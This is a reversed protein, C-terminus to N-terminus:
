AIGRDGAPLRDYVRAWGAEFAPGTLDGRELGRELDELEAVAEELMAVDGRTTRGDAAVVSTIEVRHCRARLDHTLRASAAVTVCYVGVAIATAPLPSLFEGLALMLLMTVVAGAIPWDRHRKVARRQAATTGPPFVTLRKQTWANRDAPAIEIFGWRHEGELARALRQVPLLHITNDM